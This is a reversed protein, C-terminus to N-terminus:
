TTLLRSWPDEKKADIPKVQVRSRDAPTMGFQIFLRNMAGLETGVQPMKSRRRRRFNVILSVLVEFATEDWNSAVGEPIKTAHERWVAKHEKDFDSPPERDRVSQV